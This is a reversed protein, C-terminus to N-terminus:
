RGTVAAEAPNKLLSATLKDAEIEFRNTLNAFLSDAAYGSLLATMPTLRFEDIGAVALFAPFFLVLWVTLVSAALTGSRISIWDMVGSATVTRINRAKVFKIVLHTAAGALALVLCFALWLWTGRDLFEDLAGTGVDLLHALLALVVPGATVAVVLGINLARTSGSRDVKLITTDDVFDGHVVRPSRRFQKGIEVLMVEDVVEDGIADALSLTGGHNKTDLHGNITSPGTVSVQIRVMERLGPIIRGAHGNVNGRSWTDEAPWRHQVDEWANQLKAPYNGFAVAAAPNATQWGSVQMVWHDIEPADRSYRFQLDAIAQAFGEDTAGSMADGQSSAHQLAKILEKAEHSINHLWTFFSDTAQSGHPPPAAAPPPEM